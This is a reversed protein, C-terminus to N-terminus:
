VNAIKIAVIGLEKHQPIVCLSLSDPVQQLTVSSMLPRMFMIEALTLFHVNATLVYPSLPVVSHVVPGKANNALTLGEMEASRLVNLAFITVFKLRSVDWQAKCIPRTVFKAPMWDTMAAFIPFACVVIIM